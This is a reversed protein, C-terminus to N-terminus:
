RVARHGHIFLECGTFEEHGVEFATKLQNNPRHKSSLASLHQPANPTVFDGALATEIDLVRRVGSVVCGRDASMIQLDLQGVNAEKKGIKEIESSNQPM